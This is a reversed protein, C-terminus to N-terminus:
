IKRLLNQLFRDSIMELYVLFDNTMSIIDGESEDRTWFQRSGVNFGPVNSCVGIAFPTLEGAVRSKKGFEEDKPCFMAEMDFVAIHSLGGLDILSLPIDTWTRALEDFVTPNAIWPGSNAQVSEEGGARVGSKVSVPCKGTKAAKDTHSKMNTAETFPTSCFPCIFVKSFKAVDRILMVHGGHILLNLVKKGVDEQSMRVPYLPAGSSATLKPFDPGKIGLDLGFINIRINLIKELGAIESLQVGGEDLRQRAQEKTKLGARVQSVLFKRWINQCTKFHKVITKLDAVKQPLNGDFYKWILYAIWFAPIKLAVAVAMTAKFGVVESLATSGSSTQHAFIAPSQM